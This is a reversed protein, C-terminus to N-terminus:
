PCYRRRRASSPYTSLRPASVASTNHLRSITHLVSLRHFATSPLASITFSNSIKAGASEPSLIEAIWQVDIM